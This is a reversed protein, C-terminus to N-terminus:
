KKVINILPISHILCLIKIRQIADQNTTDCYFKTINRQANQSAFGIYFELKGNSGKTYTGGTGPYFILDNADLVQKWQNIHM